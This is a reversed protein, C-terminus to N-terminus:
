VATTGLRTRPLRKKRRCGDVGYDSASGAHTCPVPARHDRHARRPVSKADAAGFRLASALATCTDFKLIGAISLCGPARVKELVCVTMHPFRRLIERGTALGIIGGGVICVDYEGQLARTTPIQGGPTCSSVSASAAGM